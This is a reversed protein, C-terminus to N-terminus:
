RSAYDIWDVSTFRDSSPSQGALWSPFWANVYLYMSSRTVGTTWRQMEVGDVLFRVLSPDYEIAYEHFGATADFPLLREITHTQSGGSYTSFWVRRSSDNFIEIDIEQAYDPKKYLFFATLSSPADAVQMRVRHSGYRYLSTSRIEGGDLRGGPLKIGLQDNAVAVNAPDIAGYGFPRSSKAWQQANFSTFDDHFSTSRAAGATSVCITALVLAALLAKGRVGEVRATECTFRGIVLPKKSLSVLASDRQRALLVKAWDRHVDDPWRSDITM